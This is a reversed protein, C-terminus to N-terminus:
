AATLKYGIGKINLIRVGSNIKELTKKLSEIVIYLRMTDGGPINSMEALNGAGVIVSSCDILSKLVDCENQSLTINTDATKLSKGSVTLTIDHYRLTDSDFDISSRRALAKIKAHLIDMNFPKRVYDDAGMELSEINDSVTDRATLVIVPTKRGEARLKKLFTYGDMQPMMIDLLIIDYKKSLALRLGAKGDAACEASYGKHVLHKSLAHCLAANDDVILITM